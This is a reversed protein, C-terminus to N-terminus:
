VGQIQYLINGTSDFQIVPTFSEPSGEDTQWTVMISNEGIATTGAWVVWVTGNFRYYLHQAQHYALWGEAPTIFEWGGNVYYAIKQSQGSWESTSNIAVLYVNGDAPSNPPAAQYGLVTPQIVAEHRRLAENVQLAKQAQSESIETTGLKPTTSM